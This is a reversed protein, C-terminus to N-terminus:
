LIGNMTAPMVIKAPITSRLTKHLFLKHSAAPQLIVTTSDASSSSHVASTRFHDSTDKGQPVKLAILMVVFIGRM